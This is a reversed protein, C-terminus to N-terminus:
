SVTIFRLERRKWGVVIIRVKMAAHKISGVTKTKNEGVTRTKNKVQRNYLNRDSIGGGVCLVHVRLLLM